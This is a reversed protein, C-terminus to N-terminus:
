WAPLTGDPSSKVATSLRPHQLVRNSADPLRSERTEPNKSVPSQRHHPLRDTLLISREVLKIKLFADRGIVQQTPDVPNEIQVPKADLKRWEVTM